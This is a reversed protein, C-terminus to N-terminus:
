RLEGRYLTRTGSPLSRREAITFRRELAQEWQAVDYADFLGARKRALLRTTMVDDRHPFEVVVPAAFDALLDVIEDLPV